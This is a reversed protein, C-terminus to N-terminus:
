SSLWRGQGSHSACVELLFLDYIVNHPPPNIGRRVWLGRDTVIQTPCQHRILSGRRTVSHVGWCWIVQLWGVMAVQHCGRVSLYTSHGGWGAFTYHLFHIVPVCRPPYTLVGDVVCSWYDFRVRVRSGNIQYFCGGSSMRGERSSCLLCLARATMSAKLFLTEFTEFLIQSVHCPKLGM